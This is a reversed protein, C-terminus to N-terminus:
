PAKQHLLIRFLGFRDTLTRGEHSDFCVLSNRSSYYCTRLFTALTHSLSKHHTKTMMSPLFQHLSFVWPSSKALMWCSLAFCAATHAHSKTILVANNDFRLPFSSWSSSVIPPSSEGKFATLQSSNPLTITSGSVGFGPWPPWINPKMPCQNVGKVHSHTQPIYHACTTCVPISPFFDIKKLPLCSLPQSCTFNELNHGATVMTCSDFHCNASHWLFCCCCHM